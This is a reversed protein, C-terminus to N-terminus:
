ATKRIKFVIEREIKKRFIYLVCYYIIVTGLSFLGALAEEMGAELLVLLTCLLLLFPLVYAMLVAKLGMGQEVSVVVEEGIQFAAPEDVMVSVLKQEHEGMGCVSKVKCSACAERAEVSVDIRKGVIDFVVGSHEIEHSIPM